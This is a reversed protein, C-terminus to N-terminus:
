AHGPRACQCPAASFAFLGTALRPLRPAPSGIDAAGTSGPQLLSVAMLMAHAGGGQAFKHQDTTLYSASTIFSKAAGQGYLRPRRRGLVGTTFREGLPNALSKRLDSLGDNATHAMTSAVPVTMSPTQRTLRRPRLWPPIRCTPLKEPPAVFQRNQSLAAM